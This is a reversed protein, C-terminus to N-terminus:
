IEGFDTEEEFNTNDSYENTEEWAEVSIDDTNDTIAFSEDTEEELDEDITEEENEKNKKSDLYVKAGVGVAAAAGLGTLVTGIGIGKDEAKSVAPTTSITIPEVEESIQNGTEIEIPEEIVSEEPIEMENNPINNNGGANSNEQYNNNSNNSSITVEEEKKEFPNIIIIEKEENNTEEKKEEKKEEKTTEKESTGKNPTTNTTTNTTAQTGQTLNSVTNNVNNTAQEVGNIIFKSASATLAAWRANRTAERGDKLSVVSENVKTASENMSTLSTSLTNLNLDDRVFLNGILGDSYNVKAAAYKLNKLMELISTFNIDDLYYQSSVREYEEKINKASKSSALISKNAIDLISDGYALGQARVELEKLMQDLATCYEFLSNKRIQKTNTMIDNAYDDMENKAITMEGIGENVRQTNFTFSTGSSNM